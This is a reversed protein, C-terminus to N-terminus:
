KIPEKKAYEREIITEIYNGQSRNELEALEKLKNLTDQSVRINLKKDKNM